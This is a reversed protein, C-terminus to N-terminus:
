PRWIHFGDKWIKLYEYYFLWYFSIILFNYIAHMYVNKGINKTIKYTAVIFLPLFWILYTRNLVPTFLYFLLFAVTCLLYKDSFHKKKDILIILTTVIWGSFSALYTYIKFPVIQFFEVKYFYSIYFLFPRGQIFRESHILVAGRIYTELDNLFPISVFLGIIAGAALFNFKSKSKLFFIPFLIYPFTKLAISTAYFTGSLVDDKELFYTALLLFFIPLPDTYVYNSKIFFYPNFFWAVLGLITALYNKNLLKILLIGVGVDALLIPIKQLTTLPIGSLLHLITAVSNIYILGPLYAFGHNGPDDPNSFSELTWKYPNVGRFLDQVAREYAYIDKGTQSFFETRQWIAILFITSIPILKLFTIKDLKFRKGMVQNYLM